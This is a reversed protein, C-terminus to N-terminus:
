GGQESSSQIMTYTIEGIKMPDIHFLYKLGQGVLRRRLIFRIGEFQVQNMITKDEM